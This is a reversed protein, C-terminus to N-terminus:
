PTSWDEDDEGLHARDKDPLMAAVEGPPYWTWEPHPENGGPWPWVKRIARRDVESTGGWVGYRENNLLAFGLCAERLPCVRGDWVGNCIDRAEDTEDLGGDQSNDFWPDNDPGTAMVACKGLSWDPADQRLRLVV